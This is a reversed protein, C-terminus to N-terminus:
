IMKIQIHNLNKKRKGVKPQARPKLNERMSWIKSSSFFMPARPLRRWCYIFAGAGREKRDKLPFLGMEGERGREREVRFESTSSGDFVKTPEILKM